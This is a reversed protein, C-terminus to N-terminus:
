CRAVVFQFMGYANIEVDCFIGSAVAGGGSWVTINYGASTCAGTSPDFVQVQCSCSSMQGTSANSASCAGLTKVRFLGHFAAIPGPNVAPPKTQGNKQRIRNATSKRIKVM